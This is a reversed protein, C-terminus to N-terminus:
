VLTRSARTWIPKIPLGLTNRLKGIMYMSGTVYRVEGDSTAVMDRALAEYDSGYASIRVDNGSVKIEDQVQELPLARESDPRVLRWHRVHPALM